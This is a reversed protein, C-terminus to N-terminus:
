SCDFMHCYASVKGHVFNRREQLEEDGTHSVVKEFIARAEYDSGGIALNNGKDFPMAVLNGAVFQLASSCVWQNKLSRTNDEARLCGVLLILDTNMDEVTAYRMTGNFKSKISQVIGEAEDNAGFVWVRVKGNQPEAKVHKQFSTSLLVFVLVGLLLFRLKM